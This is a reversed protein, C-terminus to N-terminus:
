LHNSESRTNYAALSVCDAVDHTQSSVLQIGEERALKWINLRQDLSTTMVLGDATFCAGLLM